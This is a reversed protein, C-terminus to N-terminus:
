VESSGSVDRSNMMPVKEPLGPCVTHKFGLLGGECFDDGTGSIKCHVRPCLQGTTGHMDRSDMTPVFGLHHSSIHSLHRLCSSGKLPPFQRFPREAVKSVACVVAVAM